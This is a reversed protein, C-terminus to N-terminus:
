PHHVENKLPAVSEKHRLQNSLLCYLVGVKLEGINPDALINKIIM